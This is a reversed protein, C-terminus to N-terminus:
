VLQFNIKWEDELVSEVAIEVQTGITFKKDTIPNYLQMLDADFEYDNRDFKSNLEVFWEITNDLEVFIGSQIVGAVVGSFTEWIKNKMYKCAMLDRIKYELKEAKVESESNKKAVKELINEYHKKRKVDLRANIKEKIIRHIQLDPYRRIPSTFHSYFDLALGFHGEAEPSYKAKTLSRLVMRSLLKERSDDKIQHLVKQIDKPQLKVGNPININFRALTEFLKQSDEENPAPHIRYLFPINQFKKSVAENAVIMFEEIIKSSDYRIYKSFETPNGHEDVEIKSEPFDFNLVGLTQKYKELTLRLKQCNKLMDILEQSVKKGGFMLSDWLHLGWKKVEKGRLLGRQGESMEGQWPLISSSKQEREEWLLPNPHPKNTWEVSPFLIEDVEKYTMRFDSVIVSEFVKTAVIHWAQNIEIQATLTLKKEDPNLSCLGNSLEEPLMPIVKNVMYISTGRRRAEKDIAHDEKVYHAVDAIHVSLIMNGNKGQEVSIADDLDKSDAGDITITFLKTLDRRHSLQKKTITKSLQSLEDKIARGFWMRAGYELAIWMIDVWKDGPKGLIKIIKAEPSRGEWKIVEVAVVQGDEAHLSNRGAVFFDKKFDKNKPVLFGFKWSSKYIGVIPQKRHEIIKIVEAEKKGRFEKIRALVTDGAIASNTNKGFVYYWKKEGTKADEVDVFGFDWKGPAFVWIVENEKPIIKKPYTSKKKESVNNRSFDKRRSNKSTKKHSSNYKKERQM